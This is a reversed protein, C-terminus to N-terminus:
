ISSNEWFVTSATKGWNVICVHTLLKVESDGFIVFTLSVLIGSILFAPCGAFLMLIDVEIRSDEMHEIYVYLM